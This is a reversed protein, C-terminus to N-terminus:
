PMPASKGHRRCPKSARTRSSTWRDQNILYDVENIPGLRKDHSGGDLLGSDFLSPVDEPGVNGYAIRTEGAVVEVLPELWAAGWSGNRVLELAIGRQKAERAIAVAVEDAGVSAATTERPVYVKAVSM